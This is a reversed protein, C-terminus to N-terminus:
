DGEPIPIPLARPFKGPRDRRTTADVTVAGFRGPASGTGATGDDDRGCCCGGGPVFPLPVGVTRGDSKRRMGPLFYGEIAAEAEEEEAVTIVPAEESEM